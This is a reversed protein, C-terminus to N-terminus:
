CIRNFLDIEISNASWNILDSGKIEKKFDFESILHPNLGATQAKEIVGEKTIFRWDTKSSGSDAIIIM